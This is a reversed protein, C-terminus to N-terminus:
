MDSFLDLQEGNEIVKIAKPYIIGDKLVVKLRVKSNQTTGTAVWSAFDIEKEDTTLVKFNYRSKLFMEGSQEKFWNPIYKKGVEKFVEDFISYDDKTLGDVLIKYETCNKTENFKGYALKVNVDFIKTENMTKEGQAM